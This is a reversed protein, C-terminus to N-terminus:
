CQHLDFFQLYYDFNFLQWYHNLDLFLLHHQHMNLHIWCHGVSPCTLYHSINNRIFSKQLKCFDCIWWWYHLLVFLLSLLTAWLNKFATLTSLGRSVITFSSSCGVTTCTLSQQSSCFDIIWLWCYHLHFFIGVNTDTM